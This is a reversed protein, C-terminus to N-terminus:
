RWYYWFGNFLRQQQGPARPPRPPPPKMSNASIAKGRRIDDRVRRQMMEFYTEHKPIPEPQPPPELREPADNRQQPRLLRALQDAIAKALEVDSAWM